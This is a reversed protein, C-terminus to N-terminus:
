NNQKKRHTRTDLDVIGEFMARAEGPAFLLRALELAENPLVAHAALDPDVQPEVLLQLIRFLAQPRSAVQPRAQFTAGLPARDHVSQTRMQGNTTRAAARIKAACPNNGQVEFALLHALHCDACSALSPDRQRGWGLGYASPHPWTM